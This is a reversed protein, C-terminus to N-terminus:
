WLNLSSNSLADSKKVEDEVRQRESGLDLWDGLSPFEEKVVDRVVSAIAMGLAMVSIYVMSIKCRFLYTPLM